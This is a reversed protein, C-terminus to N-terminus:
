EVLKRKPFFGFKEIEEFHELAYKEYDFYNLDGFLKVSVKQDDMNESHM